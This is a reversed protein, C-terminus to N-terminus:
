LARGKEMKGFDDTPYLWTNKGLEKQKEVPTEIPLEISSKIDVIDVESNENNINEDSIAAKNDSQYHMQKENASYRKYNSNVLKIIIVVGILYIVIMM